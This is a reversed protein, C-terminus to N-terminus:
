IANSKELKILTRSCGNTRAINKSSAQRRALRKKLILGRDIRKTASAMQPLQACLEEITWVHDSIGAEMAPTVRLTSHVRCFNYYMFWIAVANSVLRRDRRQGQLGFMYGANFATSRLRPM